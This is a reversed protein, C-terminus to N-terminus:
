NKWLGHLNCFAYIAKVTEQPTLTFTAQPADGPALRRCHSGASTELAIWEIFHAALMPHAVSGVTVQVTQGEVTSVPVHKEQAGDSTNPVLERMPQGCCITEAATEKVPLIIKGCLACRLLKM